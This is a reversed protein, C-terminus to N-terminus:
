KTIMLMKYWRDGFIAIVDLQDAYYLIKGELSAPFRTATPSHTLIIECVEAPLGHSLAAHAGLFGHPYRRGADTYGSSEGDPEYEVLKSVDQLLGAAILVDRNVVVGHHKEFVDAAALALALVAHCHRIHSGPIEPSTPVDEISEFPSAEWLEMWVAKVGSRLKADSIGALEPFLAPMDLQQKV